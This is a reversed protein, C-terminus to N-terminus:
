GANAYQSANNLQQAQSRLKLMMVLWIAKLDPGTCHLIPWACQLATM